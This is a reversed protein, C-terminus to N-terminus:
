HCHDHGCGCAEGDDDEDEDEDEHGELTVGDLSHPEQWSFITGSETEALDIAAKAAEPVENPIITCASRLSPTVRFDRDGEASDPNLVRHISGWWAFAYTGDDCEWWSIDGVADHNRKIDKMLAFAEESVGLQKKTDTVVCGLRGDGTPYWGETKGIGETPNSPVFVISGKYAVVQVKM